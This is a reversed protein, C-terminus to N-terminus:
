RDIELNLMFFPEHNISASKSGEVHFETRIVGGFIERILSQDIQKLDTNFHFNTSKHGVEHWEDTPTEEKEPPSAILKLEDHLLDIIIALFEQCDQHHQYPNFNNLLIEFIKEAEVVKQSYACKKDIQEYPNFYKSLTVFKRLISDEGLSNILEEKNNIEVLMNYFAPCGM